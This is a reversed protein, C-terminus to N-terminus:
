LCNPTLNQLYHTARERTKTLFTGSITFNEQQYYQLIMVVAQKGLRRWFDNGAFTTAM